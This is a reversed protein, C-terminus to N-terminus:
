WKMLVRNGIKINLGTTVFIAGDSPKDDTKCRVDIVASMPEGSKDKGTSTNSAGGNFSIFL